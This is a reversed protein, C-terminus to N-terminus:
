FIYMHQYYLENHIKLHGNQQDKLIQWNIQKKIIIKTQKIDKKNKM